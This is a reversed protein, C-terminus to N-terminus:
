SKRNRVLKRNQHELDRIAVILSLYRFTSEYVEEYEWIVGASCAPLNTLLPSDLIFHGLVGWTQARTNNLYERQTLFM